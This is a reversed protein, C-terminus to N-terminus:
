NINNKLSYKLNNISNILNEIQNFYLDRIKRIQNDNLDVEKIIGHELNNQLLLINDDNSEIKISNLFTDEELKKEETKISAENLALPKKLIKKIFEIIKNM